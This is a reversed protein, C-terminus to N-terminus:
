EYRILLVGAANHGAIAVGQRHILRTASDWKVASRFGM